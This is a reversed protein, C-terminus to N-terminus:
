VWRDLEKKNDFLDRLNEDLKDSLIFSVETIKENSRLSELFKTAFRASGVQGIIFKVTDRPYQAEVLKDGCEIIAKELGNQNNNNTDPIGDTIISILLPRQLARLSLKQYVLPDLVKSTLSSGLDTNSDPVWSILKMVEGLTRLDFICSNDNLAPGQNIFRLAIGESSPLFPTSILAINQILKTQLDWRNDRKTSSSDDCFLVHQYLNIKSSSESDKALDVLKRVLLPIFDQNKKGFYVALERREKVYQDVNNIFQEATIAATTKNVQQKTTPNSESIDLGPLRNFAGDFIENVSSFCFRIFTLIYETQKIRDLEEQDPYLANLISKKRTNTKPLNDAVERANFGDDNKITLSAGARKLMRIIELDANSKSNAAREIAYMLPTKNDAADCTDDIFDSPLKSLLLQTILPAEKTTLFSALLHPPQGNPLRENPKAGNKLLQIVQEPNGNIVANALPTLGTEPD